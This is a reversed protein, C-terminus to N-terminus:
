RCVPLARGDCFLVRGDPLCILRHTTQMDKKEDVFNDNNHPVTKLTEEFMRKDCM